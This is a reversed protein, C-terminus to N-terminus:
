KMKGPAMPWQDSALGVLGAETLAQRLPEAQSRDLGIRHDSILQWPQIELNEQVWCACRASLVDLTAAIGRYIIVFDAM